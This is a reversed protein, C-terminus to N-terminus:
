IKGKRAKLESRGLPSAQDTIQSSALDNTIEELSM